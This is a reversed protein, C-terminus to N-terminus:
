SVAVIKCGLNAPASAASIPLSLACITHRGPTALIRTVFGHSGTVRFFRNVDPRVDSTRILAVLRGDATVRVVNSASPARTDFAWGAMQFTRNAGTARDFSGLTAAASVTIVRCGLSIAVSSTGLPRANVCVTHRGPSAGIGAVFGHAGTVGFVQNVDPRTRGTGVVAAQGGDLVVAAAASGATRQPDLVWGAASFGDVGASVADLSGRLHPPPPALSGSDAPTAGRYHWYGMLDGAFYSDLGAQVKINEGTTPSAAMAPHGNVTGIYIGSHYAPASGGNGLLAVDGPVPHSTKTFEGSLRISSDGSGGGIDVGFAYYYLERVFGSCDVESNLAAPRSGHGGAYLYPIGLTTQHLAEAVLRTLRAGPSTAAALLDASIARPFVSNLPSAATASGQGAVLGAVITAFLATIMTSKKLM